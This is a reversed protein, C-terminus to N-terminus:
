SISNILSSRKIKEDSPPLPYFALPIKYRPLREALFARWLNPQWTDATVFAVPRAGWEPDSQPVVVANQVLTLLHREIEEPQINEGGSIFLNDKRGYFSGNYFLDGTAFFGEQLPLGELYGSFLSPGRLFLEGDSAIRWEIHPLPVGDLFCTSSLETLGYSIRLPWNPKAFSLPAGGILACRLSSPPTSLRYLQTPVFSAHTSTELSTFPTAGSLRCRLLAGIAAVHTLPLPIHYRSSADLQLATVMARASSLLAEYTFLATKPRGTTGSTLLLLAHPSTAHPEPLPLSGEPTVIARCGAEIAFARAESFPLRPSLPFVAEERFDFPTGYLAIRHSM